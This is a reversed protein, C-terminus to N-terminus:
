KAKQSFLIGSYHQIFACCCGFVYSLALSGSFIGGFLEVLAFFLTLLISTTLTKKSQAQYKYHKIHHYKFDIKEKNM